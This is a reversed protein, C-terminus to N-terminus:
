VVEGDDLVLSCGITGNTTTGAVTIWGVLKSTPAVSQTLADADSLTTAKGIVSGGVAGNTNTGGYVLVATGGIQMALYNGPATIGPSRGAVGNLTAVNLADNERPTVTYSARNAWYLLGNAVSSGTANADVQVIQYRKGNGATFKKGLEGAKYLSTQNFFTEPNGTSLYVSQDNLSNQSM